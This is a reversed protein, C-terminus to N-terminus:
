SEEEHRQEENGVCSIHYLVMHGVRWNLSQLCPCLKAESVVDSVEKAKLEALRAEERAKVTEPLFEERHAFMKERTSHLKYVRPYKEFPAIADKYGKLANTYVEDTLHWKQNVKDNAMPKGSFDLDFVKDAVPTTVHYADSSPLELKTVLKRTTMKTIHPLPKEFPQVKETKKTRSGKRNRDKSARTSPNKSENEGESKEKTPGAITPTSMIYHTRKNAGIFFLYYKTPQRCQARELSNLSGSCNLDVHCTSSDCRCVLVEVVILHDSIIVGGLYSVAAKDRRLGAISVLLFLKFM